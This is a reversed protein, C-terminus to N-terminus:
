GTRRISNFICLNLREITENIQSKRDNEYDSVKYFRNLWLETSNTKDIWGYYAFDRPLIDMQIIKKVLPGINMKDHPFSDAYLALVPLPSFLPDLNYANLIENLASEYYKTKLGSGSIKEKVFSWKLESNQFKAKFGLELPTNYKRLIPDFNFELGSFTKVTAINSTALNFSYKKPKAFMFSLGRRLGSLISSKGTGNKGIIVTTQIGYKLSYDKFCRFNNFTTEIIQM